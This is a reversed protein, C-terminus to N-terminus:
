EARAKNIGCILYAREQERERKRLQQPQIFSKAGSMCNGGVLTTVLALLSWKKRERFAEFLRSDYENRM